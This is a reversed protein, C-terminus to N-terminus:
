RGGRAYHKSIIGELTTEICSDDDSSSAPIPNRPASQTVQAVVKCFSPSCHSHDNFVLSPGNRLDKRLSEVDKSEEHM